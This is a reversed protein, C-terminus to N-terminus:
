LMPAVIRHDRGAQEIREMEPPDTPKHDRTLSKVYKSDRGLVCRCHDFPLIWARDATSPDVHSHNITQQGLEGYRSDGINGTTILYPRGADQNSDANPSVLAFV